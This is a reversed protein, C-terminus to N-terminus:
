EDGDNNQGAGLKSALITAAVPGGVSVIAIICASVTHEYIATMTSMGLGFLAVILAGIQGRNKRTESADVTKIELNQRHTVQGDTWKMLMPVIDPFERKYEELIFAPPLMLHGTYSRSLMVSITKSVNPDKTDVGERELEEEISPPIIEPAGRSPPDIDQNHDAIGLKEATM